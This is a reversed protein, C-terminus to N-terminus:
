MGKNRNYIQLMPIRLRDERDLEGEADGNHSLSRRLPVFGTNIRLLWFWTIDTWTAEDEGNTLEGTTTVVPVTMM